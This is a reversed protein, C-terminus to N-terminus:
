TMAVMLFYKGNAQRKGEEGSKEKLPGDYRQREDVLLHIKDVREIALIDGSVPTHAFNPAL